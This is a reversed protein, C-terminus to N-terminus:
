QVAQQLIKAMRQAFPKTYSGDPDLDPDLITIEMGVAKEDALLVPLLAEIEEYTLGDPQPSDVAPMIDNHLVDVDFHIWFGDLQQAHIKQLIQQAITKIGGSRLEDLDLYHISSQLIFAIYAEDYDRNGVCWTATEEVYPKQKSINTLKDHGIGTVISLDMGAAAKSTSMASTAYDTHGDLFILGYRGRKKLALMNGILVSCDGGLVVPFAGEDLIKGIMASQLQAYIAMADANRVGSAKDLHMSYAPPTITYIAAPQVIEYFGYKKLWAPLNKVGPEHGRSPEALGLNTPCELMHITRM